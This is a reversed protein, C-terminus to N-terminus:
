MIPLPWDKAPEWELKRLQSFPNLSEPRLKKRFEVVTTAISIIVCKADPYHQSKVILTGKQGNEFRDRIAHAGNVILNLVVQNIEGVCPVLLNEDLELKLEYSVEM